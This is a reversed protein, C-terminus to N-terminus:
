TISGELKAAKWDRYKLVVKKEDETLPFEAPEEIVKGYAIELLAKFRIVDGEGIGQDIIRNLFQSCKAESLKQHIMLKISAKGGELLNTVERPIAPPRGKRNGSKGKKFSGSSKAM